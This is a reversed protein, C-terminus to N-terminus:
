NKNNLIEKVKGVIRHVAVDGVEYYGEFRKSVNVCTSHHRNTYNAIECFLHGYERALMYVVGRAMTHSLGKNRSFLQGIEIGSALCIAEQLQSLTYQKERQPM